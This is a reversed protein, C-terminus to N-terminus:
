VNKEDDVVVVVIRLTCLNEERKDAYVEPREYPFGSRDAEATIM